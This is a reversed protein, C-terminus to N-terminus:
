LLHGMLDQKTKLYFENNSNAAIVIPVRAVVEINAQEFARIKLPNNTMLNIKEIGLDKIILMADEYQRADEPFGLHLNAEATNMGKEQLRYAHLKQILGIGRGEQRLYLVVGGHQAALRLAEHLQEGCDCRKSGFVDGTLCESHLRLLVTQDPKFNEHVLALHPQPDDPTHAYAIMTFNGWPTPMLADAQKKM